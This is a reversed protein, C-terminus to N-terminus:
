RRCRGGLSRLAGCVSDRSQRLYGDVQPSGKSIADRAAALALEVRDLVQREDRYPGRGELLLWSPFTRVRLGPRLAARLEVKVGDLPVAVFVSPVPFTARRLARLVLVPQERPLARAYRASSLAALFVPSNPFLVADGTIEGRLWAAAAALRASTGSQLSRPDPVASPSALALGAVLALLAAQLVPRLPEVAVAFGSGVLAVWLPLAFILQRSSFHDSFAQDSRALVLLLPLGVLALVSLAVFWRERRRWLAVVGALALAVFLVFVPGRGGSFGGLGRGLVAAARRPAVVSQGGSAGASFRSALRLDLFLFPVLACGALVIAVAARISRPRWVLLAVVVEAALLVVGFPHTAPLLWAAAAAALVAGRTRVQVARIFLDVALAAVFAFLAYMRGFSGYVALMQSSGALVASAVGATAGLLRRGIDYCLPVTAVALVVSVLRLATASPDVSLALEELLFHLPAGGRDHITGLVDLLGHASVLGALAEDEFIPKGRVDPVIQALLVIMGTFVGLVHVSSRGKM